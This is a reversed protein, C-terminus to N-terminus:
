AQMGIKGTLNDEMLKKVSPINALKKKSRHLTVKVWSESRQLIISVEALSFEEAYFFWLTDFSEESLHKRIMKWINNKSIKDIINDQETKQQQNQEIIQESKGETSELSVFRTPQKSAIRRAITFLWTSFQWKPDYSKIHRYANIFAEQLIDEADHQHQCHSLLFRFLRQQYLKVLQTFCSTIGNQAQKILESESM